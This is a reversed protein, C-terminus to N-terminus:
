GIKLNVKGPLDVFNRNNSSQNEESVWEVCWGLVQAQKIDDDTFDKKLERFSTVM